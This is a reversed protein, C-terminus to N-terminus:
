KGGKYRYKAFKIPEGASDGDFYMVAYRMADCGHNDKDVPVEKNPKGDIGDPWVYGPIEDALSLPAKADALAEDRRYLADRMILLRGDRFRQNVAEIGTRIPKRAAITYIGKAELTARDEADHDAVTAEIAEGRSLANITDAHDSVIVGSQYLERYLYMNGDYDMAWWQCTFPNRYGFDISRIRRWDPPPSFHEIIHSAPNYHDYVVGEASVWKGWRYREYRVGTLRDLKSLYSLGEDSWKAAKHDYLRPNDEHSCYIIQCLGDDCRQKLWHRPPGPNTDGIIQQYPLVGNRLRTLLVEWDEIGLEIAEGVYILDYESSLIKTPKDMGGLVIRSGNPYDYGTRNARGVRRGGAGLLIPSDDGLVYDEYTQLTTETLSHRTKRVILFRARPYQLALRHIKELISRTKGTGAPGSMLIEAATAEYAAKASGYPRYDISALMDAGSARDALRQMLGKAFTRATLKNAAVM